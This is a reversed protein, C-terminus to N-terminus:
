GLKELIAQAAGEVGLRGHAYTLAGQMYVIYPARVPADASLEISAGAVFTGAAMIVPDQYGPMAWPEPVAESDVPSYRQIAQIFSILRDATGFRIAQIIDCRAEDYRPNVEFGLKEFTRAALIATKVAQMVTHPAQFLGQYFPRYSGAYSGVEAGIGPSTLRCAVLDVLDKRGAVYGGTPALGGGPNKIMSGAMLDAGVHGPEREETFEGYCNDVMVAVDPRVSHIFACTEEIQAITFSPRWDYGRSRQLEVLRVHENKLLERVRDFDIRGGELLDAQEYGIGYDQLSGMGPKGSIGIVEEMTDYPKGTASLLVDGPRLVGYLCLALAHTGSAIQPRVIAAECGMLEAWIDSLNDRGIDDYGYGTTPAFHRASVRHAQFSQLIRMTNHREIEDLRDFSARCDKEAENVLLRAKESYDM